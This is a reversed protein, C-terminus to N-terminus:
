KDVPSAEGLDEWQLLTYPAIDRRVRRGLLSRSYKIDLFKAPIGGGPRMPAVNQLTLNDGKRLAVKSVVSHQAWQRVPLEEPTVVKTTDLGQEIKRIAEVMRRFEIPDLSVLDDPGHLDRITFHKEIIKAGLAVAAIATYIESTHDSQGVIVGFREKLYPILGLHAHDYRTPYESTTNMLAFPVQEERLVNVTEAIEELTSMGTSVIMPKGKKAIHRMMPLNTLEGSGIKFAAVGVEDLIDAAEICFPTCLYQIGVKECHAKLERHQAVTEFNVEKLIEDMSGAWFKISDPIMEAAPVHLQFKAIDAGSAKAAEILRKASEMKGRYECALEAIIVVKGEGITVSGLKIPQM